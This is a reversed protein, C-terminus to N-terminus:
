PFTQQLTSYDYTLQSHENLMAKLCSIEDPITNEHMSIWKSNIGLPSDILLLCFFRALRQGINSQCCAHLTWSLASMNDTVNLLVPYPDATFNTTTIVHLSAIYNIIVTVFELVNVSIFKRDSNDTKHLLTRQQVEDPVPLHWWFKLDLSYGGM